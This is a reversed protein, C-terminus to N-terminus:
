DQPPLQLSRPLPHCTLIWRSLRPRVRRQALPPSTTAGGDISHPAEPRQPPAAQPDSSGRAHEDAGPDRADEGAEAEEASVDEENPTATYPRREIRTGLPQFREQPM